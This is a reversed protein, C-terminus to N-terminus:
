QNTNNTFTSNDIEMNTILLNSNIDISFSITNEFLIPTASSTQETVTQLTPTLILSNILSYIQQETYITNSNDSTPLIILSTLQSSLLHTQQHSQQFTNM